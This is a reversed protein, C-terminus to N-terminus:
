GAKSKLTPACPLLLNVLRGIGECSQLGPETGMRVGGGRTSRLFSIAGMSVRCSGV